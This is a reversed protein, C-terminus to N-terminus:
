AKTCSHRVYLKAEEPKISPGLLDRKMKSAAAECTGSSRYNPIVLNEKFGNMFVMVLIYEGM